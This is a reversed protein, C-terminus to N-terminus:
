NTTNLAEPGHSELSVRQLAPPDVQIARPQPVGRPDQPRRPVRRAYDLHHDQQQDEARRADGHVHAQFSLPKPNTPTSM